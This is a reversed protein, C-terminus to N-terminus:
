QDANTSLNSKIRLSNCPYFDTLDNKFNVIESMYLYKRFSLIEKLYSELVELLKTHHRKGTNLWVLLLQLVQL